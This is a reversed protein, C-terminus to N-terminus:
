HCQLAGRAQSWDHVALADAPIWFYFFGGDQNLLLEGDGNADVQLLLRWRLAQRRIALCEPSEDRWGDWGQPRLAIEIDLYPDGQIADPHGLLRHYPRQDDGRQSAGYIFRALPRYPLIERDGAQYAALVQDQPLLAEYFFSSEIAPYLVEDDLAIKHAALSEVDDPAARRSLAAGAAFHLVRVPHDRRDGAPIPAYFFSLLGSSPLERAARHPALEALDFQAVFTLPEGDEEPWALDPPLDPAGGFRTEGVPGIAPAEGEDDRNEDENEDEDEDEDEYEPELQLRLSPRALAAVEVAHESLGSPGLAERFEEELMAADIATLREHDSLAAAFDDATQLRDDALVTWYFFLDNPMACELDDGLHAAIAPLARLHGAVYALWRERPAESPDGLYVEQERCDRPRESADDEYIVLRVALVLGGRETTWLPAEYGGAFELAGGHIRLPFFSRFLELTADAIDNVRGSIGSRSPTASPDRRVSAPRRHNGSPRRM